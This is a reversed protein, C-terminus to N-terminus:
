DKAGQASLNFELPWTPNKGGYREPLNEESIYELLRHREKTISPNIFDMTKVVRKPLLPRVIRWPIQLWRPSHCVCICQLLQPYCDEMVGMAKGDRRNCEISIKSLSIGKLDIIRLHKTLRGTTRTIYDLWQHTYESCYSFYPLWASEDVNKVMTQGDIGAMQLFLVLGRKPDPLVDQQAGEQAYQFIQRTMECDISPPNGRIDGWEDLKHEKRFLLTYKMAKLAKKGKKKHSLLFRLIWLDDHKKPNYLPDAALDSKLKNIKDRNDIILDKVSLRKDYENVPSIPEAIAVDIGKMWPWSALSTM